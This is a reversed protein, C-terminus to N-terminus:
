HGGGTAADAAGEMAGGASEAAAKAQDFIGKLAPDAEIKALAENLGEQTMGHQALMDAAGDPNQAMHVVVQAIETVKEPTLEMPMAAPESMAPESMTPEAAPEAAPTAEQQAQQACAGVFLIVGPILFTSVIKRSM